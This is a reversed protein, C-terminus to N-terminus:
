VGEPESNNSLLDSLNKKLNALRLNLEVKKNFQKERILAKHLRNLEKTIRAKKQELKILEKLSLNERKKMKTLQFCFDEFVFDLSKKLNLKYNFCNNDFWETKFSWDVVAMNPDISHLHKSSSTLYLSGSFEVIIILHYPISREIIDIITDISEKKKLEIKFIQIEQIETGALNITEASLKHLWTIRLIFDALIKKQKTNTYSDFANKPLVRLVKTRDPLNFYEM